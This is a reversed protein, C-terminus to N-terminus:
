GLKSAGDLAGDLQFIALVNTVCVRGSKSKTIEDLMADDQDSRQMTVEGILLFTLVSVRTVDLKLRPRCESSATKRTTM